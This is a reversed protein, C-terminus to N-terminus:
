CRLLRSVLAPQVDCGGFVAARDAASDVVRSELGFSPRGMRQPSGSRLQEDPREHRFRTNSMVGCLDGGSGRLDQAAPNSLDCDAEFNQNADIWARTVGSTGFAQTTQPMRLSPNTNAYNGTVGAGELYKGLSVSSRRRQRNRVPRVGRGNEAHCGHLQRRWRTEPIHIPTPLFRSPGEQQAPFWSRARDFRLAGQLTLRKRTWQEQVYLADWAVRANNVWPSISQTLQNPRGNNFRYTLNQDNTM